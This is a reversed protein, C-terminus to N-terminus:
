ATRASEKIGVCRLAVVSKSDAGCSAPRPPLKEAQISVLFTREDGDSLGVEIEVDGDERENARLREVLDGFETRVAIEAVQERATWCTRGRFGDLGVLGQGMTRAVAVAEEPALRGYVCGEPLFILSPAFRHGGTHSCEWVDEGSAALAEAVPRGRVACCVDRRGHACVLAPRTAKWGQRDRWFASDWAFIQEPDQELLERLDRLGLERACSSRLDPETAAVLVRQGGAQAHSAGPRRLCLLRAQAREAWRAVAGTLEGFVEAEVIDRGWPGPHELCLWRKGSGATGALPEDLASVASCTLAM